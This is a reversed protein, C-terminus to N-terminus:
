LSDLIGKRKDIEQQQSTVILRAMEVAPPYQGDKIETHAMAIAGQHHETM